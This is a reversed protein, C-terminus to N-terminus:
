TGVNIIIIHLIRYSVYAIYYGVVTLACLSVVFQLSESLFHRLAGARMAFQFKGTQLSVNALFYVVPLGIFLQWPFLKYILQSSESHILTYFIVQENTTLHYPICVLKFLFYVISTKVLWQTLVNSKPKFPEITIISIFPLLELITLLAESRKTNTFWICLLYIAQHIVFALPYCALNKISKPSIIKNSSLVTWLSSICCIVHISQHNMNPMSPLWLLIKNDTLLYPIMTLISIIDVICSILLYAQMPIFNFWNNKDPLVNYVEETIFIALMHAYFQIMTNQFKADFTSRCIAASIICVSFLLIFKFISIEDKNSTGTNFSRYTIYALFVTVHIVKYEIIYTEYQLTVLADNKILYMIFSFSFLWYTILLLLNNLLKFLDMDYHKFFNIFSNIRTTVSFSDIEICISVATCGLIICVILHVTVSNSINTFSTEIGATICLLIIYNFLVEMSFCFSWHVISTIVTRYTFYGKANILWKFTAIFSALGLFINANNLYSLYTQRWKPEGTFSVYINGIVQYILVLGIWILLPTTATRLLDTKGVYVCIRGSIHVVLTLVLLHPLHVVYNTIDTSRHHTTLAAFKVKYTHSDYTSVFPDSLKLHEVDGMNHETDRKERISLAQSQSSSTLRRDVLCFIVFVAVMATMFQVYTLRIKQNLSFKGCEISTDWGCCAEVDRQTSTETGGSVSNKDDGSIVPFQHKMVDEIDVDASSYSLDKLCQRIEALKSQFNKETIYTNPSPHSFTNRTKRLKDIADHCTPTPHNKLKQGISDSHLLVYFLVSLDWSNCDGSKRLQQGVKKKNTELKYFNDYSDQDDNWPMHSYFQNWQEKFFGRLCPAVVNHYITVLANYRDM